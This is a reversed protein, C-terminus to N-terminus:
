MKDTFLANPVSPMGQHRVLIAITPKLKSAKRLSECLHAKFYKSRMTFARNLLVM